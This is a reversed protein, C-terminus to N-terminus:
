MDGSCASPLFTSARESMKENPETSYSITVPRRGKSPSVPGEVSAAIRALSGAGGLLRTPSSGNSSSRAM